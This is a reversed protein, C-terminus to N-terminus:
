SEKRGAAEDEPQIAATTNRERIADAALERIM